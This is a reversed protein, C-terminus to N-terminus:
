KFTYLKKSKSIQLPSYVNPKKLKKTNLNFNFTFLQFFLNSIEKNCLANMVLYFIEEVELPFLINRKNINDGNNHNQTSAIISLLRRFRLYIIQQKRTRESGYYIFM